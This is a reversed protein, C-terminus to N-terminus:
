RGGDQPPPADHCHSLAKQLFPLPLAVEVRFTGEGPVVRAQELLQAMEQDESGGAQAQLRAVSLLAGTSKGLDALGQADDASFDAVMAVDGTADAHVKVSPALQEIQQALQTQGLMQSLDSPDVVGYVEGYSDEDTLLPESDPSRGEVRDIMAQVEGVSTGQMLMQDGWTAIVRGSSADGYITGHDGYSVPPGSASFISDWRANHFSGSMVFGDSLSVVRDIDKLPDVGTKSQFAEIPDKPGKRFCDILAEGLPSNRIANAEIVMASTGSGKPPLVSLVPDRPRRAGADVLPVLMRAALARRSALRLREPERLRAPYKVEPTEAAADTPSDRAMLLAGVLLLAGAAV